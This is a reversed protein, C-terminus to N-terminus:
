QLRKYAGSDTLHRIWANFTYHKQYHREWIERLRDEEIQIYPKYTTELILM